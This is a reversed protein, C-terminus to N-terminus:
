EHDLDIVNRKFTKVFTKLRKPFVKFENFYYVVIRKKDDKFRFIILSSKDKVNDGTFLDKYDTTRLGTFFKDYNKQRGRIIERAGQRILFPQIAPDTKLETPLYDFTPKDCQTLCYWRSFENLVYTLRTCNSLNNFAAM